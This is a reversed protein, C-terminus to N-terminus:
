LGARPGSVDAPAVACAPERAGRRADPAWGLVQLESICVERWDRRTGPLVSAIEIRYVGGPGGVPLHQLGRSRPDVSFTGLDQGDRSVRVGTVRYNETFFDRDGRRRTFGATLAIASVRAEAPLRVEIWAGVLDDTGSNWATELDGDVMRPVQRPRGHYASSTVVEAPVARLLDVPTSAGDASRAGAGNPLAHSPRPAAPGCGAVAILSAAVALPRLM